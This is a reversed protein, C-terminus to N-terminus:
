FHDIIRYVLVEAIVRDGRKQGWVQLETNDAIEDLSDIPVIVQQITQEGSKISGPKGMPMETEDRYLVTDRTLVTEIEPGSHSLSIKREETAGDVEVDLEIGGTGVYISNDQRRVFIGSAEAPRDPLEPAPEIRIRLSVPGTGDDAVIELVKGTAQEDSDAGQQAGLMQAGVYAAAALLAVLIVIGGILFITRKM